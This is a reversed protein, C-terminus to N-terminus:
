SKMRLEENLLQEKNETRHGQQAAHALERHAARPPQEGDPAGAQATRRHCARADPHQEAARHAATRLLHVGNEGCRFPHQRLLHLLGREDRPHQQLLREGQAHQVTGTRDRGGSVHSEGNHLPYVQRGAGAHLFLPPVDGCPEQSGRRTDRGNHDSPGTDACQRGTCLSEQARGHGDDPRDLHEVRQHHRM